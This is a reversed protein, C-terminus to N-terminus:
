KGQRVSYQQYQWYQKGFTLKYYKSNQVHQTEKEGISSFLNVHYASDFETDSKSIDTWVISIRNLVEEVIISWWNSSIHDSTRNHCGSFIVGRGTITLPQWLQILSRNEDDQRLMIQVFYRMVNRRWILVRVRCWDDYKLLRKGRVKEQLSSTIKNIDNMSTNRSHVDVSCKFWDQLLTTHPTHITFHPHQIRVSTTNTIHSPLM